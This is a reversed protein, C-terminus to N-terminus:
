WLGRRFEALLEVDILCPGPEFPHVIALHPFKLQWTPTALGDECWRAWNSAIEEPLTFGMHALYAALSSSGHYRLWVELCGWPALRSPVVAYRGTRTLCIPSQRDQWQEQSRLHLRECRYCLQESTATIRHSSPFSNKCCRLYINSYRPNWATCYELNGPQIHGCSHVVKEYNCM